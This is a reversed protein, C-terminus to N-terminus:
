LFPLFKPNALGKRRSEPKEQLPLLTTFEGNRLLMLAGFCLLQEREPPQGHKEHLDLVRKRKETEKRAEDAAVNVESKRMRSMLRQGKRSKFVRYCFSVLVLLQLIILWNDGFDSVTKGM